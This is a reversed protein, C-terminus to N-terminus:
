VDPERIGRPNCIVVLISAQTQSLGSLGSVVRLGAAVAGGDKIVNNILKFYDLATDVEKGGIEHALPPPRTPPKISKVTNWEADFSLMGPHM